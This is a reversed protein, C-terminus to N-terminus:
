QLVGVIPTWHWGQGWVICDGEPSCRWGFDLLGYSGASGWPTRVEVLARSATHTWVGNNDIIVLIPAEPPRGVGFSLICLLVACLCNADWRTFRLRRLQTTSRAM